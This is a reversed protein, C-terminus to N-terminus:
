VVDFRTLTSSLETYEWRVKDFVELLAQAKEAQKELKLVYEDYFHRQELSSQLCKALYKPCNDAQLQDLQVALNVPRLSTLPHCRCTPFSLCTILWFDMQRRGEGICPIGETRIDQPDCFRRRMCRADWRPGRSESWCDEFM